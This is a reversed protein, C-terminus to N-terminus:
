SHEPHPRTAPELARLLEEQQSSLTGAKRARILRVALRKEEVTARKSQTPLHGLSLIATVLDETAPQSACGAGGALASAVRNPPKAM